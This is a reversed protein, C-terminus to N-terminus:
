KKKRLSFVYSIVEAVAKYHEEPIEQDLEVGAYLARALPKNEVLPIDNEKALERIRKAVLDVGKAIVVPVSMEDHKYKLAVAFHTPNTIVVDASPVAAMMRRKAKEMRLARLKGKIFPDGETQKYEDKIEQKTMRLQKTHQMRQFILDGMAVVVMVAIVGTMFKIVLAQSYQLMHSPHGGIILEVGQMMPWILMVAITGVLALKLIGKTFEVLAKTGFIRKFGKLPSLKSLKPKMSETSFILGTQILNSGVGTLLFAGLPILLLPMFITLIAMYLDLAESDYFRMQHSQAILKELQQAMNGAWGPAVFAIMLVMVMLAVVNSVERSSAVQGKKKADDKKKQTPEETKSADDQDGSM